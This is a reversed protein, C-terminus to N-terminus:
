RNFVEDHAKPHLWDSLTTRSIRVSREILPSPFCPPASHGSGSRGDEVRRLMAPIRHRIDRLSSIANVSQTDFGDMEVIVGLWM